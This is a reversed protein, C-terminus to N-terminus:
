LRQGLIELGVKVSTLRVQNRGIEGFQRQEHFIAQGRRASAFHVLGVPKAATGGDPGAVGTM